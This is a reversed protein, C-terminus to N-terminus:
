GVDVDPVLSPVTIGRRRAVHRLFLDRLDAAAGGLGGPFLWLVILLGAGTALIEWERAWFYDVSSVYAAGIVAGPISGLGGLVAMTFVSLSEEPRYPGGT